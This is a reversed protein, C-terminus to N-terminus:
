LHAGPDPAPGTAQETFFQNEQTSVLDTVEQLREGLLRDLGQRFRHSMLEAPDPLAVTHCVGEADVWM